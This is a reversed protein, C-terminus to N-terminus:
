LKIPTSGIEINLSTATGGDGVHILWGSTPVATKISGDAQLFYKKGVQLTSGEGGTIATWDPLEISGLAGYELKDGVAADKTAFGVVNTNTASDALYLKGDGAMHVPQGKLIAVGADADLAYVIETLDKKPYSVQVTAQGDFSPSTVVITADANSVSTVINSAKKSLIPMSQGGHKFKSKPNQVEASPQTEASQVEASLVAM